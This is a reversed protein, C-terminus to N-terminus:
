DGSLRRLTQFFEPFSVAAADGDEILMPGAVGGLVAASMAIRHDGLTHVPERPAHPRGGCIQLTDAGIRARIGVASLLREIAALRDSEKARLERVGAFTTEGGAVAAAVALLPIEDIARLTLAADFARGQLPSAEVELDAVPEGCVTRVDRLALHAGMAALADLAGTRTPNVGVNRLRLRSGPTIAAAAVFFSAASVDGSITLDRGRPPGNRLTVTGADWEIGAGLYQLLRETHDRSGRDGAVTVPVGAFLGAFLLATKVQASPAYLIFRRTEIRPTGLLQLPLHGDTTEIRAGFARLQAAAPEMPRASLSADGEFRAAIGLGACAGLLMRATSASNACEIAGPPERLRGGGIVVGDGSRDVRAGLASVAGLTAAVDRGSNIGHIRTRGHLAAAVIAARHSISKDGPPSTEGRLPGFQIRSAPPVHAFNVCFDGIERLFDPTSATTVSRM